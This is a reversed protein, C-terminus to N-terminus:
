GPYEVDIRTVGRRRERGRMERREKDERGTLRGGRGKRGEERM